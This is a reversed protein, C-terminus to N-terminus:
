SATACTKPDQMVQASKGRLLPASGFQRSDGSRDDPTRTRKGLPLDVARTVESSDVSLVRPYSRMDIHEVSDEDREVAPNEPIECCLPCDTDESPWDRSGCISCPHKM